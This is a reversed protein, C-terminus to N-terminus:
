DAMVTREAAWARLAALPEAMVVSLPRTRQYEALIHQTTMSANLAHAAYLASVIGAELEAGSFGATAAVLAPLDFAAADLERRQLHIRLIDLRVDAAPLDVFFLEDFRGKRVLEPPLRSVDNATAVVFVPAQKEALWTLFAGLVRRSLGDDASDTALSKEIEDLWLVCPAMTEAQALVARLNRDTEGQYKNYLAGFDLRLLPVGLVGATAKAALSKGCGQVGLLLLGRPPDIAVAPEPQQLVRRRQELWVKLRRLGGVEAFQTTDYEYSLATDRNLLEYKARAVAPVDAPTIAGDDYIANRALRETDALTLGALNQQLQERAQPDIAVSGPHAADWEAAVDAVIRAREAASPLRMEFRAAFSRLEDPLNIEHSVLVLSQGREPAAIAIDKLLRVHVPDDLYPHFDLLAFIGPETLARIHRLVQDPPANTIQPAMDIDCRQLGDTVTWQFLPRYGAAPQRGSLDRLFEMFRREDRTEALVLPVRSALVLSLDHADHM